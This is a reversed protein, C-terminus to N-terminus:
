RVIYWQATIVETPVNKARLRLYGDFSETNTFQAKVAVSTSVPAVTVNVIDNSTM